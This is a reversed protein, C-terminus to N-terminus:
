RDKVEGHSVQVRAVAIIREIPDNGKQVVACGLEDDRSFGSIKDEETKWFGRGVWANVLNDVSIRRLETYLGDGLDFDATGTTILVDKNTGRPEPAFVRYVSMTGRGIHSIARAVKVKHEILVRVKLGDEPVDFKVAKGALHASVIQQYASTYPDFHLTGKCL